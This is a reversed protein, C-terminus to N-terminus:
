RSIENYITIITYKTEFNRYMEIFRKSYTVGSLKKMVYNFKVFLDVWEHHKFDIIADTQLFYHYTLKIPQKLKTNLFEYVLDIIENGSNYIIYDYAEEIDKYNRLENEVRYILDEYEEITKDKVLTHSTLKFEPYYKKKLDNIDSNLGTLYDYFNNVENYVEDISYGTRDMQGRFSNLFRKVNALDNLFKNIYHNLANYDKLFEDDQKASLNFLKLFLFDRYINNIKTEIISLDKDVQKIQGELSMTKDLSADRVRVVAKEKYLKEKPMKVKSVKPYTYEEKFTIVEKKAM